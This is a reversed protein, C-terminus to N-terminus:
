IRDLEGLDPITRANAQFTNTLVVEAGAAVNARHIALVRGPLSINWAAGNEGLSLGARLLESGMAGDMLLPSGSRLVDLFTQKAVIFSLMVVLRSDAIPKQGLVLCRASPASM